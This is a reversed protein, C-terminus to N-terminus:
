IQTDQVLSNTVNMSFPSNITEKTKEHLYTYIFSPHIMQVAFTHQHFINHKRILRYIEFGVILILNFNVKQCWYYSCREQLVPILNLIAVLGNFEKSVKWQPYQHVMMYTCLLFCLTLYNTANLSKDVSILNLTLVYCFIIIVLNPFLFANEYIM